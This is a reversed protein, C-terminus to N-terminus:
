FFVGNLIAFIHTEHGTGLLLPLSAAGCPSPIHSWGGASFSRGRSPPAGDVGVPKRRHRESRSYALVLVKAQEVAAALSARSSDGTVYNVFISFGFRCRLSISACSGSVKFSSPSTRRMALGCLYFCRRQELLCHFILRPRGASSSGWRPHPPLLVTPRRRADIQSTLKPIQLCPNRTQESQSFGLVEERFDGTLSGVRIAVLEVPENIISDSSSSSSSSFSPAARRAFRSLRSPPDGNSSRLLLSRLDERFGECQRRADSRRGLGFVM